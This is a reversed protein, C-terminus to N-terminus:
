SFFFLPCRSDLGRREIEYSGFLEEASLTADQTVDADTGIAARFLCVGCGLGGGPM